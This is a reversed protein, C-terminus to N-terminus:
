KPWLPELTSIGLLPRVPQATVGCVVATMHMRMAVAGLLWTKAVETPTGQLEKVGPKLGAMM